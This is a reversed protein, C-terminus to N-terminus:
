TIFEMDNTPTGEHFAETIVWFQWSKEYIEVFFYADPINAVTRAISVNPNPIKDTIKQQLTYWLYSISINWQLLTSFHWSYLLM